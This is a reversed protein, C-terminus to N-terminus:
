KPKISGNYRSPTMEGFWGADPKKLAPKHQLKFLKLSKLQGGLYKLLRSLCAFGRITPEFLAGVEFLVGHARARGIVIVIDTLFGKPLFGEPLYPNAGEEKEV